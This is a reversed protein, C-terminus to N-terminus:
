AAETLNAAYVFRDVRTYVAQQESILWAEMPLSRATHRWRTNDYEAFRPGNEIQAISVDDLPICTIKSLPADYDAFVRENRYSIYEYGTDLTGKDGAWRSQTILGREFIDVVGQSGIWLSKFAAGPTLNAGRRRTMNQFISIGLDATTTDGNRGDVAKWDKYTTRSIGEFTGTQATAAGHGQLINSAGNAAGPVYVSNATTTAFSCTATDDSALAVTITEAAATLDRDTIIVALKATTLDASVLVDVVRGVYLLAMNANAVKITQTTASSASTSASVVALVGDGTGNLLENQQKTLSEQASSMHLELEQAMATRTNKTTAIVRPTLQLTHELMAIGVNGKVTKLNYAVPLTGTETAIGTGAKLNRMVTFRLTNGDYDLHELNARDYQDALVGGHRYAHQLTLLHEITLDSFEQSGTTAPGTFATM